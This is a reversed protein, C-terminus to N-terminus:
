QIKFADSSYRFSEDYCTLNPKLSAQDIRNLIIWSVMKISFKTKISNTEYDHKTRYNELNKFSILQHHIGFTETNSSYILAKM